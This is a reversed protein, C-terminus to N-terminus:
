INIPKLFNRVFVAFLLVNLDTGTGNVVSRRGCISIVTTAETVKALARQANLRLVNVNRCLGLYNTSLWASPECMSTLSSVCSSALVSVGHVLPEAHSFSALDCTFLKRTIQMRDDTIM